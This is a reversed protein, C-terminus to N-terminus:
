QVETVARLRVIGHYTEGDAERRTEASEQRLNVLRHDTLALSSDHLAAAVAGMIEHVQRRGTARSWVHVTLTHEHGRESGTSWDRVTSQGVTVYPPESGRPVDDHVHPGGLLALLDADTTLRTFIARQLAWGASTM